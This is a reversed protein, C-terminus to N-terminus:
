GHAGHQDALMLLDVGLRGLSLRRDSVFIAEGEVRIRREQEEGGGDHLLGAQILRM